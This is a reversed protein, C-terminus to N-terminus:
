LGGLINTVLEMLSQLLPLSLWLIVATSLLQLVKGLTGNGADTCILAAIEGVLGIGLAKMLIKMMESDLGTQQQLQRLFGLVPKLYGLATGCVMCCVAVTLLIGNEKNQKGVSLGLVVALMVAAAAQIYGEM